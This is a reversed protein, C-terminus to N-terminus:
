EGDVLEMVANGVTLIDEYMSLLGDYLGQLMKEFGHWVNRTAARMAKVARKREDHTKANYYQKRANYLAPLSM